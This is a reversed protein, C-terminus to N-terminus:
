RQIPVVQSGVGNNIIINNPEAPENTVTSDVYVRVTERSGTVGTYYSSYNIVTQEVDFINNIVKVNGIRYLFSSNSRIPANIRRVKISTTRESGIVNQTTSDVTQELSNETKEKFVQTVGSTGSMITFGTDSMNYTVELVFRDGDEVNSFNFTPTFTGNETAATAVFPFHLIPKSPPQFCTFFLGYVTEGSWAGSTIVSRRDNTSVYTMATYPSSVIVGQDNLTSITSTSSTFASTVLTGTDATIVFNFRTNLFYQARDEFMEETYRKTPKIFQEPLVSLTYASTVASTVSSFSLIPARISEAVKNWAENSRTMRYEQVDDYGIKYIEQEVGLIRTDSTFVETNSTFLFSISPRTYIVFVSSRESGYFNYTGTSSSFGPLVFVIPEEDVTRELVFNNNYFVHGPGDQTGATRFNRILPISYAM